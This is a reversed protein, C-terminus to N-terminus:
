FKRDHIRFLVSLFPTIRKIVANAKTAATVTQMAPSIDTESTSILCSIEVRTTVTEYVSPAFGAITVTSKRVFETEM